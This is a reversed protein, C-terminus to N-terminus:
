SAQGIRFFVYPGILVWIPIFVWIRGKIVNYDHLIKGWPNGAIFHGFGVEFALTLALWIIGITWAQNASEIRWFSALTRFYAALLILLLATSVQHAPLDGIYPKYVGDRFAGNMVAIVMMGFWALSYKLIM